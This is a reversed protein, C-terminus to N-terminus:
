RLKECELVTHGQKLCEMRLARQQGETIITERTTETCGKWGLVAIVLFAGLFGLLIKTDLDFM